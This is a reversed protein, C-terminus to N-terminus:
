DISFVMTVVATIDKELSSTDNMGYDSVEVSYAPTIQLVGMRASRIGGIQSGTAEAIQQARTKADRAAEALMKVKLDGIRTYLYEPQYSELAIGQNILETAERSVRTIREVDRSRIEVGQQLRYGVIESLEMGDPSLPHLAITQISTEIIQDAPVEKEALYRRLTAMSAKLDAYATALDGSQHSVYGRWIIMDSTIQQKASGTVTIAEDNKVRIVAHAGLAAAVILAVGLVLASLLPQHDRVVPM